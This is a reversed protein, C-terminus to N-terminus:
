LPDLGGIKAACRTIAYRLAANADAHNWVGENAIVAKRRWASATEGDIETKLSLREALRRADLMSGLPDGIDYDPGAAKAAAALMEPAPLRM